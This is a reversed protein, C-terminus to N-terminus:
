RAGPKERSRDAQLLELPRVQDTGETCPPPGQCDMTAGAGLGGFCGNYSSRLHYEPVRLHYEEEIKRPTCAGLEFEKYLIGPGGSSSLLVGNSFRASLALQHSPVLRADPKSGVAWTGVGRRRWNPRRQRQSEESADQARRGGQVSPKLSTAADPPAGHCAPRLCLGRPAIPPQPPPATGPAPTEAKGRQPLTVGGDGPRDARCCAAKLFAGSTGTLCRLPARAACPAPSRPLGPRPWCTSPGWSPHESPGGPDQCLLGSLRNREDHWVVRFHPRPERGALLLPASKTKYSILFPPPPSM